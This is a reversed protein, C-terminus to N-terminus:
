EWSQLSCNRLINIDGRELVDMGIVSMFRFSTDAVAVVVVESAQARLGRTLAVGITRTWKELRSDM